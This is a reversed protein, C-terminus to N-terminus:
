PQLAAAAAVPEARARLWLRALFRPWTLQPGARCRVVLFRPVRQSTGAMLLVGKRDEWRGKEEQCCLAMATRAARDARALGLYDSLVTCSQGQSWEDWMSAARQVRRALTALQRAQRVDLQVRLADLGARASTVNGLLLNVEAELLAAALRTPREAAADKLRSVIARAEVLRVQQLLLRAEALSEEEAQAEAESLFRLPATAVGPWPPPAVTYGCRVVVGKSRTSKLEVYDHSQLRRRRQAGGPCAAVDWRLHVHLPSAEAQTADPLSDRPLDARICPHSTDCTMSASAELRLASSGAVNDPLHLACLCPRSLQERCEDCALQTSPLPFLLLTLTYVIGVCWKGCTQRRRVKGDGRPMPLVTMQPMGYLPKLTGQSGRISVQFLEASAYTANAVLNFRVQRGGSTVHLRRVVTTQPYHLGIVFTDDKARTAEGQRRPTITCSVGLGFIM